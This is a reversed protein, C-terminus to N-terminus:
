ETTAFLPTSAPVIRIRASPPAAQGDAALSACRECCAEYTAADLQLGVRFEIGNRNFQVVAAYRSELWHRLRYTTLYHHPRIKARLRFYGQLLASPDEPKGLLLRLDLVADLAAADGDPLIAALLEDVVALGSRLPWELASDVAPADPTPTSPRVDFRTFKM